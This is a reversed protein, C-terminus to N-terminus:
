GFLKVFAELKLSRKDTFTTKTYADLARVSCARQSFESATRLAGERLVPGRYHLAAEIAQEFRQGEDRGRSVLCGNRESRVVDRAGPADLAVVPVGAAMAEVLVMGQTESTSAFAFVDFAAYADILEQGSRSGLVHVRSKGAAWSRLTPGSPGDGVIVAHASSNRALVNDAARCWFDLNKEPALRGVYGFVSDGPVIKLKNRWAERNGTAFLRVDVGTPVVDIPAHVGRSRLIDATSESPAFVRDCTNAFTTASSVIASKVGSFHGVDGLAYSFQEYMTHHTFVLPVKFRSALNAAATGLLFPHHTHVVDPLFSVAAFRLATQMKKDLLPFAFSSANINGLAPIRIVDPHQKFEGPVGPAIVAVRHGLRKYDDFFAQVSRAVGGVHPTFTNTVMLINM